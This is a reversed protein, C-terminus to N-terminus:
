YNHLHPGGPQHMSICIMMVKGLSKGKERGFDHYITTLDDQENKQSCYIMM